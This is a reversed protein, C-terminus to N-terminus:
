AGGGHAGRRTPYLTLRSRLEGSSRSCGAAAAAAAHRAAPRRSRSCRVLAGAATRAADTGAAAAGHIAHAGRRGGEARQDGPDSEAARGRGALGHCPTEPAHRASLVTCLKLCPQSGQSLVLCSGNVSGVYLLPGALPCSCSLPLSRICLRMFRCLLPRAKTAGDWAVPRNVGTVDAKRMEEQVLLSVEEQTSGARRRRM